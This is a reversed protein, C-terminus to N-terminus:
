LSKMNEDEEGGIEPGVEVLNPVILMKKYIPNLNKYIFLWVRRWSSIIAFFYFYFRSKIIVSFKTLFLYFKNNKPPGSMEINPYLLKTKSNNM